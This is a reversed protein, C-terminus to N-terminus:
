NDSQSIKHSHCYPLLTILFAFCIRCNVGSLLTLGILVKQPINSTVIITFIITHWGLLHICFLLLLKQRQNNLIETAKSCDPHLTLIVQSNHM